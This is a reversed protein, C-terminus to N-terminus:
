FENIGQLKRGDELTRGGVINNYVSIQEQTLTKTFYDLRFMEELHGVSLYESFAIEIDAFHEAVDSEAIADFSRMNDIFMPLNEHILRYAIATSKAESSYMNKRNEYFDTFYTTFKSFNEIMKKEDEDTVFGPLHKHILEKKFLDKYSSDEEFKGVIQKRLKTKIDDFDKEKRRHNEALSVYQELDEIKLILGSLCTTIFEKHYRDIIGKVKKYEQARKEDKAVLGNKEINRLTNGVPKLEFRLTKSLSYLGTLNKITEM